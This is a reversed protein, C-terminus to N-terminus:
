EGPDDARDKRHEPLLVIPASAEGEVPLVSSIAVVPASGMRSLEAPPVDAPGTERPRPRRADVWSLRLRTVRGAVEWSRQVLECHHHPAGSMALLAECFGLTQWSAACEAAPCMGYDVIIEASTDNLSLVALAEFDFFSSLLVRFRMLTERPSKAVVLEPFQASIGVMQQRGFARIPEANAPQLTTRARRTRAAHTQQADEDAQTWVVGAFTDLLALGLREFAAMPYWADLQIRETLYVRDEPFLRASATARQRKVIRVYDLFLVGRVMRPTSDKTRISVSSTMNRLQGLHEEDRAESDLLPDGPGM